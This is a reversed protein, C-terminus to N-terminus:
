GFFPQSIRGVYGLPLATWLAAFRHIYEGVNPYLTLGQLGTDPLWVVELATTEAPNLAPTGSEITAWFVVHLVDDKAEARIVEGFLMEQGVSVTIGLEERLERVITQPLTEGRDPNGGPLAYVTQGGYEYRLLLAVMQNDVTQCILASPRVTMIKIEGGAGRRSLPSIAVPM